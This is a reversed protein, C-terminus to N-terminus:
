HAMGMTSANWGRYPWDIFDQSSIDDRTAPAKSLDDLSVINSCHSSETRNRSHHQGIRPPPGPPSYYTDRSVRRDPTNLSLLSPSLSQENSDVSSLSLRNVAHPAEYTMHSQRATTNTHFTTGSDRSVGSDSDLQEGYVPQRTQRPHFSSMSDASPERKPPTPRQQGKELNRLAQLRKDRTVTQKMAAKKLRMAALLSEEQKTVSMMRRSAVSDTDSFVSVSMRYGSNESETPTAPFPPILDSKPETQASEREVQEYLNSLALSSGRKPVPMQLQEGRSNRSVVKLTRVRSHQTGITSAKATMEHATGVEVLSENNFALAVSDRLAPKLPQPSRVPAARVNQRVDEEDESGSLNLYSDKTLDTEEIAKRKSASTTQSRTSQRALSTKSAKATLVAVRPSSKPATSPSQLYQRPTAVSSSSINVGHTDTRVSSNDSPPKIKDDRFATELGTVFNQEFEPEDVLDEESTDGELGDFWHKVGVKPKRVNVKLCAPDMPELLAKNTKDTQRRSLSSPKVPAFRTSRPTKPLDNYSKISPISEHGSDPRWIAGASSPPAESTRPRQKSLKRGEMTPRAKPSNSLKGEDRDGDTFPFRLIRPSGKHLAMDRQSSESTQQSIRLPMKQPEYHSRLTSSSAFNKMPMPPVTEKETASRMYEEHLLVSSARLELEPRPSLGERARGSRADLQATQQPERNYSRSSTTSAISQNRAIRMDTDTIGLMKQAKNDRNGRSGFMKTSSPSADTRNRRLASPLHFLTSPSM